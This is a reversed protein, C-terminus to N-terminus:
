ENSQLLRFYRRKGVKLIAENTFNVAQNFDTSRLEDITVAGQEVLRRLNSNSEEPVAQQLVQGVTMGMNVVIDTMEDPAEKNQVTKEFFEQAKTAAEEDHYMKTIEFALRKKFNIPNEGSILAREMDIIEEASIDTLVTFYTIIEEDAVSMLKGYM